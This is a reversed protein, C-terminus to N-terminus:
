SAAAMPEDDGFVGDQMAIMRAFAGNPKGRLAEFTGSEVIRGADLVIIRDASRITSLRHAITIVTRGKVLDDLAQQILRESAYDLASTPEDLILIAPDRLLARAISLRQRQGGSLMVGREGIKTALGEPQREIFETAQARRAAERVQADTADARAFRINDAITGSMLVSEQMVIATQRRFWRVDLEAQPVGDVRITGHTPAYLGLLLSAITSKGAGSAGVLAVREGPEITLSFEALADRTASPYRFTVAEFEIRGRISPTITRTGTWRETEPEDLLERISVYAERAIFYQSALNSFQLIPGMMSPLAAVFALVTGATLQGYIALTAGGAVILLSLLQVSTWSLTGFTSGTYILQVRSRAADADTANLHDRVRTEEGYSRVLRLAGLAESAAGTLQEQARRNEENVRELRKFFTARMLAILPLMLLVVGALRWNMCILITITLLSYVADPLFNNLLPLAVQDIKQTDFTYKALLRGAQQRDLYGFSLCQIKEVLEARLSRVLDTVAVGLLWGGRVSFVHHLALLGVMMGALKAIGAVDKAPMRHDIIDKFVLPFVCIVVIRAVAFGVGPAFRRRSSWLFRPLTAAHDAPVSPMDAPFHVLFRFNRPM